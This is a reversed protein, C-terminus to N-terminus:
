YILLCSMVFAAPQIDHGYLDTFWIKYDKKTNNLCEYKRYKTQRRNALMIFHDCHPNFEVIDSHVMLDGVLTQNVIAAVYQVVIYKKNRSYVFDDPLTFETSQTHYYRKTQKQREIRNMM